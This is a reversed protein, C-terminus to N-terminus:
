LPASLSDDLMSESATRSRNKNAAKADQRWAMVERLDDDPSFYELAQSATSLEELTRCGFAMQAKLADSCVVKNTDLKGREFAIM